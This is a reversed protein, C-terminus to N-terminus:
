IIGGGLLLRVVMVAIVFLNLNRGKHSSSLQGLGAGIVPVILWIWNTWGFLPILGVVALVLGLLGLLISVINLM